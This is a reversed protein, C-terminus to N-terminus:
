REQTGFGGGGTVYGDINAAFAQLGNEHTGFVVEGSADTRFGQQMAEYVDLDEYQVQYTFRRNDEWAMTDRDHTKDKPILLRLKVVTREASLPHATIWLFHDSQNLITENPFVTYIVNGGETLVVKELPAEKMRELSRKALYTRLHPDFRDVLVCNGQFMANASTRHLVPFHYGELTGEVVLKWNANRVQSEFGFIRYNELKLDAIDPRLRGLFEDIDASSQGERPVLWIFGCAEVVPVRVLNREGVGVGPFHEGQNIRELRGNTDYTWAHYRCTFSRKCGREAAEVITGRHRCVNLFANAEGAANRCILISKGFHELTVFSHPEPLESGHLLMSPVRFFINRKEAEFWEQSLYRGVAVHMQDDALELCPNELKAFARRLIDFEDQTKM